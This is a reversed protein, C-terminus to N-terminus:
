KRGDYVAEDQLWLILKTGFLVNRLENICIQLMIIYIIIRVNENTVAGVVAPAVISV